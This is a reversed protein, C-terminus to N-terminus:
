PNQDHRFGEGPVYPEGNAEASARRGCEALWAMRRQAPGLYEGNSRSGGPRGVIPEHKPIGGAAYDGAVLEVLGWPRAVGRRVVETIAARWCAAPYFAQHEYFRYALRRCGQRDGGWTRWILAWIAEAEAREMPHMGGHIMLAGDDPPYSEHEQSLAPDPAPNTTTTTTTAERAHAHAPAPAPACV